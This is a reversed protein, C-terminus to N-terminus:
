YIEFGLWTLCVNIHIHPNNEIILSKVKKSENYLSMGAVYFPVERLLTVGTGRFLGNFGDQHWTSVTAEVINDFLNAQLRQKLM